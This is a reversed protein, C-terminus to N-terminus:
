EIASAKSEVEFEVAEKQVPAPAEPAPSTKPAGANAEPFLAADVEPLMLRAFEIAPSEEITDEDPNVSSTFYMKYLARALGYRKRAGSAGSPAEWQNEEPHNFTWFVRQIARTHANEKEFKATYFEAEKGSPLTISHRLQSGDQRFGSSPYCVNPTHRVIDRSHGVILWLDVAQGTISNTYRRSVYGVAGATQRVIEDVPLDEGEWEGINMPVNAFRKGMEAAEAGPESWRDKMAYGEYFSLSIIAVLALGAPLFTRVM